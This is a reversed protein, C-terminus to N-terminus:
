NQMKVGPFLVVHLFIAYVGKYAANGPAGQEVQEKPQSNSEEKGQKEAVELLIVAVGEEKYAQQDRNGHGSSVKNIVM